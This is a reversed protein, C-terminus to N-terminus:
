VGQEKRFLRAPIPTIDGSDDFVVVMQGVPVWCVVFDKGQWHVDAKRLKLWGSSQECPEERLRFMNGKEDTAIYTDSALAPAMGLVAVVSCLALQRNLARM